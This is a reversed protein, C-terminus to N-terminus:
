SDSPHIRSQSNGCGPIDKIAPRCLRRRHLPHARHVAGGYHVGSVVAFSNGTTSPRSIQRGNNKFQIEGFATEGEFTLPEPETLQSPQVLQLEVGEHGSQLVGVLPWVEDPIGQDFKMPIPTPISGGKNNVTYHITSTAMDLEWKVEGGSSCQPIPPILAAKGELSVTGQTINFLYYDDSTTLQPSNHDYSKKSFGVVVESDEGCELQLRMNLIQDSCGKQLHLNLYAVKDTINPPFTVSQYRNGFKLGDSHGTSDFHVDPAEGLPNSEQTSTVGGM